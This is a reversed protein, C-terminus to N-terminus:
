MCLYKKSFLVNGSYAYDMYLESVINIFRFSQCRQQSSECDTWCWNPKFINSKAAIDAITKLFIVPNIVPFLQIEHVYLDLNEVERMSDIEEKKLYIVNHLRSSTVM